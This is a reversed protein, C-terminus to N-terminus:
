DQLVGIEIQIKKIKNMESEITDEGLCEGEEIGDVIM